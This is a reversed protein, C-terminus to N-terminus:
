LVPPTGEGMARKFGKSPHFPTANGCSICLPSDLLFGKRFNYKEICGEWICQNNIIQAMGMYM